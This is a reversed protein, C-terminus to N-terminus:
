NKTMNVTHRCTVSKKEKVHKGFSRQSWSWNKQFFQFKLWIHKQMRPISRSIFKSNFNLNSDNYTWVYNLMHYSRLISKETFFLIRIKPVEADHQRRRRQHQQHQQHQQHKQHQQHQQHQQHKQNHPATPATSVTPATPVTTTPPSPSSLILTTTTHTDIDSSLPLPHEDPHRHPHQQRDTRRHPHASRHTLIRDKVSKTHASIDYVDKVLSSRRNTKVLFDDNTSYQFKINRRKVAKMSFIM